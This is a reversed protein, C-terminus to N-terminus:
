YLFVPQLPYKGQAIRRAFWNTYVRIQEGNGYVEVLYLDHTSLGFLYDLGAFTPVEDIYVSPVIARGRRLVCTSAFSSRPCSTTFLRQRVFDAADFAASTLLDDADYALVSTVAMHRRRELRDSVVQIGELEVPNPTLVIEVLGTAEDFSRTLKGTEYGIHDVTIEHSGATVDAVRFRGSEDTLVRRRSDDLRVLANKVPQRALGDTVQGIITIRGSDGNSQAMVPLSAFVSVLMVGYTAFRRVFRIRSGDHGDKRTTMM